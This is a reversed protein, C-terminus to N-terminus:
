QAETIGESNESRSKTDLLQEVKLHLQTFVDIASELVEQRYLSRWAQDTPAYPQMKGSFWPSVKHMMYPAM